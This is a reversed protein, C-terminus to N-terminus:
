GLNNGEGPGKPLNRTSGESPGESRCGQSTTIYDLKRKAGDWRGREQFKSRQGRFMSGRPLPSLELSERDGDFALDAELFNVCVILSLSIVDVLWTM